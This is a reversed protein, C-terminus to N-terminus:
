PCVTLVGRVMAFRVPAFVVRWWLQVNVSFRGTVCVGNLVPVRDFRTPMAPRVDAVNEQVPGSIGFPTVRVSGSVPMNKL